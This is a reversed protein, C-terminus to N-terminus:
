MFAVSPRGVADRAAAATNDFLAAAAAAAAFAAALLRSSSAAWAYSAFVSRSMPAVCTAHPAHQRTAGGRKRGTEGRAICKAGDSFTRKEVNARCIHRQSSRTAAYCWWAKQGNRRQRHM